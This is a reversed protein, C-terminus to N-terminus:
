AALIPMKGNKRRLDRLDSVRCLIRKLNQSLSIARVRRGFFLDNCDKKVRTLIKRLARARNYSASTM